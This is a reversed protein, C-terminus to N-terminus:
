LTRYKPLVQKDNLVTRFWGGCNNCCLRKYVRSIARHVGRSQVDTSGCRPCGVEGFLERNVHGQCYPMLKNYVKELLIIDQNCYLAMEKVAAKDGNMVRMWLGPSTKIKNGLKLYSGLYDLKNSNFMFQSKAVKYTDISTIPPLPELGHFLIRTNIYKKDFFDGNHAVIVDAQSLIKHLTKIVHYDDQHNKAYRKPDDLVSVNHVKDEDAWKWSGCIVYRESVLSEPNIWDNKALQFIAATQLSTELDWFLIKPSAM